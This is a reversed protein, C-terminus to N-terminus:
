VMALHWCWMVDYWTSPAFKKLCGASFDCFCGQKPVWCDIKQCHRLDSRFKPTVAGAPCLHNKAQFFFLVMGGSVLKTPPQVLGKSFYARWFPFRGWIPISFFYKFGGGLLLLRWQVHITPNSSKQPLRGIKLSFVRSSTEPFVLWGLSPPLSNTNWIWGPHNNHWTHFFELKPLSIVKVMEPPILKCRFTALMEHSSLIESAM